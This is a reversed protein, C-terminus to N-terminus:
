LHWFLIDEMPISGPDPAEAMAILCPDEPFAVLRKVSGDQWGLLSKMLEECIQQKM